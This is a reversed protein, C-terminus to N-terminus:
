PQISIKSQIGILPAFIDSKNAYESLCEQNVPIANTAQGILLNQYNAGLMYSLLREAAANQAKDGKGIAWEYTYRGRIGAEIPYVVNVSSSFIGNNTLEQLIEKVEMTTSQCVACSSEPSYFEWENVEVNSYLRGTSTLLIEMKEDETDIIYQFGSGLQAMDSITRESYAIQKDGDNILIIVPYAIGLPVVKRRMLTNQNEEIFNCEMAQKSNLVNEVSYLTLENLDINTCEFLNPRKGSKEAKELAAEYEEASYGEVQVKVRPYEREFAAAVEKLAQEELSYGDKIYWLVITTESLKAKREKQIYRGLLIVALVALLGFAAGFGSNRRRRRKKKEEVISLVKRNGNIDELFDDVSQYRYAKDVAMAKMIANNINKPISPEIVDPELIEDNETRNTSEPPIVGTLMNYLTAGLPYIDLFPGYNGDDVYQEPPTFGCKSINDEYENDSDSLKAAGLDMLKISGDAKLQINDPAVDRHYIHMDHLSKLATGVETVVRIGYELSSKNERKIYKKLTEGDLFEMVIYATSNEEFYEYVNVFSQHNGLKAMSRAEALFREKRYLFTEKMGPQEIIKVEKEGTLRYNLNNIFCEKVAVIMELKKDFGKYVIGFGGGGVRHGVVYRDKLITGPLIDSVNVPDPNHETGCFPCMEMSFDFEKFCELCLGM